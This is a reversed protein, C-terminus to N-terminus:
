DDEYLSDIYEKDVPRRKTPNGSARFERAFEILQDLQAPKAQVRELERQLAERVAERPEVKKLAAVKRALAETEADMIDVDM